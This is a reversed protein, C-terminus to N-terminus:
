SKLLKFAHSWENRLFGPICWLICLPEIARAAAATGMDAVDWGFKILIDEVHKKADVNNGCIFMTPRGDRFQPDIMRANGVSSFAKVFDAEPAASQLKEMLSSDLDTFFQVLGNSPPVDAIPNTTDIITKGKLRPALIKTLPEAATGKVALVLLDAFDATEEFSGTKLNLKSESKWQELKQKERSGVMVDYGHKLFGAALVKAVQGSGIIGVKRSSM